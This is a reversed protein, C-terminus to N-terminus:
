LEQTPAGHQARCKCYLAQKSNERERVRGAERAQERKREREFYIYLSLVFCFLVFGVSNKNHCNSMLPYKNGKSNNLSINCIQTEFWESQFSAVIFLM